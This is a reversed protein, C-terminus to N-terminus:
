RLLHSVQLLALSKQGTMRLIVFVASKAPQLFALYCEFGLITPELNRLRRSSPVLRALLTRAAVGCGAKRVISERPLNGLGHIGALAPPALFNSDPYTKDSDSPRHPRIHEGVALEDILRACQRPNEAIRRLARFDGSQGTSCFPNSSEVGLPRNPRARYGASSVAGQLTM